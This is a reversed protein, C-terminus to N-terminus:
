QQSCIDRYKLPVKYVVHIHSGKYNGAYWSWNTFLSKKEFPLNNGVQAYHKTFKAKGPYKM